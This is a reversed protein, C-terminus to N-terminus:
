HATRARQGPPVTSVARLPQMWLVRIRQYRHLGLPLQVRPPDEGGWEVGASLLNVSGEGPLGNNLSFPPNRAIRLELEWRVSWGLVTRASQESLQMATVNNSAERIASIAQQDFFRTGSSRAVRVGTIAGTPGHLVEIEVIYRSATARGAQGLTISPRLVPSNPHAADLESAAAAGRDSAFAGLSEATASQNASMGGTLM